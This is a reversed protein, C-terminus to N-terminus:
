KKNKEFNLTMNKSPHLKNDGDIILCEIGKLQNVLALGDNVGLVFVGTAL